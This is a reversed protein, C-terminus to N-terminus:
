RSDDGATNSYLIPQSLVAEANGCLAICLYRRDIIKVGAKISRGAAPVPMEIDLYRKEGQESLYIHLFLREKGSVYDFSSKGWIIEEPLEYRPLETIVVDTEEEKTLEESQENWSYISVTLGVSRQPYYIERYRGAEQELRRRLEEGRRPLARPHFFGCVGCRVDTGALPHSCVICKRNKM